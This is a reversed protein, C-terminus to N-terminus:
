FPISTSGTNRTFKVASYTTTNGKNLLGTTSNWSNATSGDSNGVQGHLFLDPTRSQGSATFVSAGNTGLDHLFANRVNINNMDLHQYTADGSDIMIWEIGGDFQNAGNLDSFMNLNLSNKNFSYTGSTAWGGITHTRKSWNTGDFEWVSNQGGTGVTDTWDIQVVLIGISGNAITTTWNFQNNPTGFMQIRSSWLWTNNQYWMDSLIRSTSAGSNKLYRVAILLKRMGTTSPFGSISGTANKSVSNITQKNVNALTFGSNTKITFQSSSTGLTITVSYDTLGQTGAIVRTRIFQDKLVYVNINNSWDHIITTGSSDASVQYEGNSVSTIKAQQEVKVWESICESSFSKETQVAFDYKNKDFSPLWDRLYGGHSLHYSSNNDILTNNKSLFRGAGLIGNGFNVGYTSTGQTTGPTGPYPAYPDPSAKVGYSGWRDCYDFFAPWNWKQQLGYLRAIAAETRYTTAVQVQYAGGLEYGGGDIYGYPDRVVRSGGLGRTTSWYESDSGPSGWLAPSGAAAAGYYTSDDEIFQGSLLHTSIADDFITTDKIFRGAFLLLLKRGISHGGESYWYTGSKACAATDIAIQLFNIFTKKHNLNTLPTFNKFSFRIMATLYANAVDQGYEPMIDLPHYYRGTFGSPHDMWLGKFSETTIPNANLYTGLSNIPINLNLLRSWNIRGLSILHKETGAYPPRFYNKSNELPSNLVTLVAAYKIKPRAVTSDLKITVGTGSKLIQGTAPLSLGTIVGASTTAYVWAYDNTSSGSIRYWGNSYGSGGNVLTRTSTLTNDASNITVGVIADNNGGIITKNGSSTYNAGAVSGNKLYATNTGSNYYSLRVLAPTYQDTYVHLEDTDIALTSTYLYEGGSIISVNTITTGGAVLDGTLIVEKNVSVTKVLSQGSSLSLSAPFSGDSNPTFPLNSSSYGSYSMNVDFPQNGSATPNIQLGNLFGNRGSFPVKMSPTVNSVKVTGGPSDPCVWWDGNAFQGCSVGSPHFVPDFYFTIDTSGSSVIISSKKQRIKSILRKNSQRAM